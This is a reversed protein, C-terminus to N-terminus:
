FGSLRPLEHTFTRLLIRFDELVGISDVYSLDLAIRMRALDPDSTEGRFGNIQALGTMGPRVVHRLPYLPCLKEYPVGGALMGIVHARPGVLSMEGCLVNWLQPLEDISTRRLIRGLPTVRPDNPLTQAVGSEDGVGAYMTAFKLIAIPQNDQGHRLQRFIAPGGSTLWIAIAIIVLPVFLVILGLAAGVIDIMRKVALQRRRRALASRLHSECHFLATKRREADRLASTMVLGFYDPAPVLPERFDGIGVRAPAPAFSPQVDEVTM